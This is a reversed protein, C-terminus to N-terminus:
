TNSTTRELQRDDLMSKNVSYAERRVAHDFEISQVAVDCDTNALSHKSLILEGTNDCRYWDEFKLYRDVIDAVVDVKGDKSVGALKRIAQLQKIVVPNTLTQLNLKKRCKRIVPLLEPLDIDPDIIDDQALQEMVTDFEAESTVEEFRHKFDFRRKRSARLNDQSGGNCQLDRLIQSLSIGAEEGYAAFLVDAIEDIASNPLIFDPISAISETFTRYSETM